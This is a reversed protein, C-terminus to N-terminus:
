RLCIPNKIYDQNRIKKVLISKKCDLPDDSQIISIEGDFLDLVANAENPLHMTPNMVALMTFGKAGLDTILGSIWERTTKIGQNVLIDSLIEVCIRKKTVSSDLTRIAKTLAIGLNTIDAKGQLKFVNPLNPIPTKPKPNCLFLFFNPNELLDELGTAETSIYFTVEGQKTGAELFNKVILEREDCPSGSLVVAYEKPIGGLLLSDLEETGATVRDELRVEEVQIKLTKLQLTKNQGREDLYHVMPNLRYDGKKSPQLTLKVEVLKLPALQKGKMNLCSEEIRYIDPKKVVVFDPLVFDDVRLLLAPERGANVFEISLCFSEGVNVRKVTTVLNAQVNAHEFSELGVSVESTPAPASFSLTSSAISPAQMVQSLSTALAKEEIVNSLIEKVQAQKEPQKVEIFLGASLQLLQEALQYYKAKKDPDVEEEASNIYVYADFLRQTAKAYESATKFGAKKYYEAAQKVHKNAMVHYSKDFTTQFKNKAALGKCFSSNGLAWLTGTKTFCLEKADEFLKAAELYSEASTTEEATAMKEWAKCLIAVYRLERRETEVDIKDAIASITQAAEGYNKSSQLYKGERDLLKADELLIRAQCYKSRFGSAEFLRQNMEREDPSTIKDIKQKFAEEARGFQELAKQFTQKAQQTNEKRSFNEAEENYSWALYNPALYNWTNTKEYLGAVNKYHQQSENYDEISHCYRAQEIQNWAQMYLSHEKYFHKLPVIKESAIEYAHSAEEYLKSAEQFDETRDHLQAQQWCAEALNTPLEAKKFYGSAEKYAELAKHLSKQDKNISFFQKQIVGLQHYYRGFDLYSAASLQQKPRRKMFVISKEISAKAQNLTKIKETHNTETNALERQIMALQSYGVAFHSFTTKTMEDLYNLNKKQVFQAKTLLKRKEDIQNSTVALLWLVHSLIVLIRNYYYKWGQFREREKEIVKIIRELIAKKTIPNTEFEALYQLAWCYFHLSNYIEMINNIIQCANGAEQSIRLAKKCYDTQINPDEELRARRLFLSSKMIKGSGILLNDRAINGYEVTKESFEMQLVSNSVVLRSNAFNAAFASWGILWADNTQQSLKLAKSAYNQCKENLQNLKEKSELVWDSFTYYISAFCYARALEFDDDLKLFIAIAKEALAVCERYILTYESHSSVLTFRDYWSHEILNNCTKGLSHIDGIQEYSELVQNELNWWKTLLHKKKSPNTEVLSQTFLAMANSHNIRTQYNEETTEKLLEAAKEYAKTAQKMHKNYEHNNQAQFAAKYYCFGLKEQLKAAKSLNKERLAIKISKQYLKTAQLWEYKKQLEKAKTINSELNEDQLAIM